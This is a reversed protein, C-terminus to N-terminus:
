RTGRLAQRPPARMRVRNNAGLMFSSDVEVRRGAIEQYVHPRKQVVEGLKTSLVLDGNQNLRLSDAGEWGLEVQDPDAGPAVDLDYEFQNDTGYCILRIGPYVGRAEVKGYHPVDTRWQAPDNGIFYNSIGPQRDLGTWESPKGAGLLKMRVTAQEIKATPGKLREEHTNAGGRSLVLVAEDDSLFLAHGAGRGAYRVGADFQGQNPEFYLPVRGYSTRVVPPIPASPTLHVPRANVDRVPRRTDSCWAISSSCIFCTFLFAIRM